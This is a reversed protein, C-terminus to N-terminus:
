AHANKGPREPGFQRRWLEKGTLDYCVVGDHGEIGCTIFIRDGWVAPTSTGLGPLNVKWAIAETASFKIPYDGKAAVGTGLPGRWQPWNEAANSSVRQLAVVLTLGLIIYRQM